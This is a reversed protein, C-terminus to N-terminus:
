CLHLTARIHNFANQEITHKIALKPIGLRELKEINESAFPSGKEEQSPEDKPCLRSMEVFWESAEVEDANPRAEPNKALLSAILHRLKPDHVHHLKPEQTLIANELAEISRASFPPLGTTLIFLCVGLAWFDSAFGNYIKKIIEPALYAPTGCKERLPFNSRLREAVGFDCIKARYDPTLLVNDLKLDRHLVGQERLYRLASLIDRLVHFIQASSFPGQARLLGMLDGREALETAFFYFKSNEFIEYLKVVNPHSVQSLIRVENFVRKIMDANKLAVKEICKIAVQRGSIKQTALYVKGFTGRGLLRRVRYFELRTPFKGCPDRELARRLQSLVEERTLRDVGEEISEGQASAACGVSFSMNFQSSDLRVSVGGFEKPAAKGSPVSTNQRKEVGTWGPRDRSKRVEEDKKVEGKIEEKESKKKGEKSMKGEKVEKGEKREEKEKLPSRLPTKARPSGGKEPHQSYYKPSEPRVPIHGASSITRLDKAAKNKVPFPIVKPRLEVLKSRSPSMQGPEKARRLDLLRSNSALGETKGGSSFGERKFLFRQPRSIESESGRTAKGSVFAVTEIRKESKKM